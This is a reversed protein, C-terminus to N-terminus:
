LFLVNDITGNGVVIVQTHLHIDQTCLIYVYKLVKPAGYSCKQM